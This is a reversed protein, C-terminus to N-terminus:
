WDEQRDRDDRLIYEFERAVKYLRENGEEEYKKMLIKYYDNAEVRIKDQVKLIYILPDCPIRKLLNLVEKENGLNLDIVM